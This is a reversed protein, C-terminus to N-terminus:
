TGSRDEDRAAAEYVEPGFDAGSTAEADGPDATAARLSRARAAIASPRLLEALGTREEDHLFGFLFLLAPYALWLVGRSLLGIAGSTPLLLEGAAVVAVASLLM